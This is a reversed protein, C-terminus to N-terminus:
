KLYLGSLTILAYDIVIEMNTIDDFMLYGLIAGWIIQTYHYPAIISASSIHQFAHFLLVAAFNGFVAVTIFVGFDYLSPYIHHPLMVPTFVLIYLIGASILMFLKSEDKGLKRVLILTTAHLIACGLVVVTWINFNEGSPRFVACIVLLGFVIVGLRSRTLIDGLFAASILALWFPSTFIIVYFTTLEMHPLALIITFSLVAAVSARAFMWWPKNTKFATSREKIFGYASLSILQFFSVYVMIQAAHFKSSLEKLLADTINFLLYGLCTLFILVTTSNGLGQFKKIM